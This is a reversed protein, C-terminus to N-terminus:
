LYPTGTSLFNVESEDQHCAKYAEHKCRSLTVKRGLGCKTKAPDESWKRIVPHKCKPNADLVLLDDRVREPKFGTKQVFIKHLIQLQESLFESDKSVLGDTNGNAAALRPFLSEVSLFFMKLSSPRPENASCVGRSM